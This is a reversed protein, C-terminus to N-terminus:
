QQPEEPNRTTQKQKQNEQHHQSRTTTRSQNGERSHIEMTPSLDRRNQHRQTKTQIWMHLQLRDRPGQPPDEKAKERYEERRQNWTKWDTGQNVAKKAEKKMSDWSRMSFQREEEDM